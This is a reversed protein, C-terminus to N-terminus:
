AHAAELPVFGAELYPVMSLALARAPTTARHCAGRGSLPRVAADFLARLQELDMAMLMDYCSPTEWPVIELGGDRVMQTVDVGSREIVRGSIPDRLKTIQAWLPFNPRLGGDNIAAHPSTDSMRHM